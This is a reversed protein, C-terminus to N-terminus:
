CFTGSSDRANEYNARKTLDATLECLSTVTKHCLTLFCAGEDSCGQSMCIGTPWTHRVFQLRRSNAKINSESPPNNLAPGEKWVGVYKELMCEYIACVKVENNLRNQEVSCNTKSITVDGRHQASNAALLREKM